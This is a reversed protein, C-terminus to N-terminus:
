SVSPLGSHDLIFTAIAASDDLTFVPLPGANGGTEQSGAVLAVLAVIRKDRAEPRPAEEGLMVLRDHGGDAFGGLLVLDVPALRQLLEEAPVKPPSAQDAMIAWREESALVVESAGVRRHEASDKGPRDLDFDEPMEIAASVSVGAAQFHPLLAAMLDIWREREPGDFGFVRM